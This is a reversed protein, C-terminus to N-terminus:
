GPDISRVLRVGVRGSRSAPLARWRSACRVAEPGDRYSGGRVSRFRADPAGEDRVVRDGAIVPGESEYADACWDASNGGLGRVGYVSVDHPFAEVEVLRPPGELSGRLNCYAADVTDGWPMVRGDVGRAAKEWELEFPLRWPVGDQEARWAAYAEASHWTVYTVPADAQWSGSGDPRDLTWGDPGRSYLADGDDNRPVHEDDPQDALFRLWDEHTVPHTQMAFGDCWLDRKRLGYPAREDGGAQFWGAPVYVEDGELDEPLHLPCEDEGPPRHRVEGQRGIVFPYLTAEGIADTLELVYSGM